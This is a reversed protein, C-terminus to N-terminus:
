WIVILSLLLQTYHQVHSFLSFFLPIIYFIMIVGEFVVVAPKQNVINIASM